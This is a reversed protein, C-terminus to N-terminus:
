EAIIQAMEYLDALTISDLGHECKYLLHEDAIVAMGSYIYDLGNSFYAVADLSEFEEKSIERGNFTCKEETSGNSSIVEGTSEYFYSMHSESYSYKYTDGKFDDQITFADSETTASSVIGDDLIQGVSSGYETSYRIIDNKGRIGYTDCVADNIIHISGLMSGAAIFLRKGLVGDMVGISQYAPASFSEYEWDCANFLLEAAELWEPLEELMEYGVLVRGHSTNKFKLQMRPNDFYGSPLYPLKIGDPEFQFANYYSPSLASIVYWYEGAEYGCEIFYEKGNYNPIGSFVTVKFYGSEENWIASKTYDISSIKFSPLFIERILKEVTKPTFYFYETTFGGVENEVYEYEYDDAEDPEIIKKLTGVAYNFLEISDISVSVDFPDERERLFLITDDSISIQKDGYGNLEEISLPIKEVDDEVPQQEEGESTEGEGETLDSASSESTSSSTESSSGQGASDINNVTDNETEKGCGALLLACAAAVVLAIIKKIKM